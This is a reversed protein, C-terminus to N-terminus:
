KWEPSVFIYVMWCWGQGWRMKKSYSSLSFSHKIFLQESSLASESFGYFHEEYFLLLDITSKLRKHHLDILFYNQCLYRKNM